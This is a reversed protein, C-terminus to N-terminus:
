DLGSVPGAGPERRLVGKLESLTVARFLLLPEAGGGRGPAARVLGTCRRARVARGAAMVALTAAILGALDSIFYPM